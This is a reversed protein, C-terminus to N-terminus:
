PNTGKSAHWNLHDESYCTSQSICSQGNEYGWGTETVQCMPKPTGYWNCMLPDSPPPEPTEPPPEPTEPPPEPTEPPPEPTEPPPEPTEPPPESTEPAYDFSLYNVNVSGTLFNIRVTQEGQELSLPIKIDSFAQWGDSSSTYPGVPTDGIVEVNFTQNSRASATRMSLEYDATIPVDIKYELWEDAATWGVNCYGSSDSTLEADVSGTNCVSDGLNNSTTDYFNSFGTAEVRAPILTALVEEEEIPPSPSANDEPIVSPFVGENAEDTFAIVLKGDIAKANNPTYDNVAFSFTWNALYWRSFDLTNFDDRWRSVFTKTQQNYDYVHFWDVFGAAPIYEPSLVGSWGSDGAWLSLRIQSAEARAPDLHKAYEVKDTVKRVLEGDVYFALFDPTWEMRYTYYRDYAPTPLSHNKSHSTRPNGPTMIQTQYRGNKGFIEFDQEQWETGPLESDNKWLFYAFIYGPGEAARIRAEFAGFKFEELTIVEAAKYPKAIANNAILLSLMGVICLMISSLRKKAFIFSSM